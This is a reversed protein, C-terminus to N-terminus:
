SNDGFIATGIRLLTAGEQIAITYDHSMGMSLHQLGMEDRLERLSAFCHRIRDQDEVLPAMTMLGEVQIGRLAMVREFDRKWEGATRGHKTAEGSTNAQLLVKTVLGLEESCLSIKEAVELTDVAHILAFSGVAKRVKNKQLTGIFHWRVDTPAHTMKESAEPLRNEGFDRCGAAYAPQVQEWPHGKSVAVLTISAPDRGCDNAIRAIEDKLQIYRTSVPM